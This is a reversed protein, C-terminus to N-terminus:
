VDSPELPRKEIRLAQSRQILTVEDEEDEEEDVLNVTPLQKNTEEASPVRNGTEKAVTRAELEEELDMMEKTTALDSEYVHQIPPSPFQSPLEPSDDREKSLDTLSPSQRIPSSSKQRPSPPPSDLIRVVPVGTYHTPTNDIPESSTSIPDPLTTSSSSPTTSTPTAERAKLLLSATQPQSAAATLTLPTLPPPPELLSPQTRQVGMNALGEIRRRMQAEEERRLQLEAEVMPLFTHPLRNVMHDFQIPTPVAGEWTFGRPMVFQPIYPENPNHEPLGTSRRSSSM